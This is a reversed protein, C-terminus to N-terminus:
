FEHHLSEDLYPHNKVMLPAKTLQTHVVFLFLGLFMMFMGLELPNFFYWHAGVTGPMVIQFLDVWHFFFIICGVVALFKPNRKADRAILFIMPLAFNVFFTTWMVPKYLDFRTQFYTIEEPINAYWILMFQCFWLYSWLFSTAFMWKGIDHIHSDNVQQLYGKSKLFLIFLILMIMSSCWTGSFIYWGFMTSYWHTDISMLWDWASTSSTVGYLVLFIAAMKVNKWHIDLGGELDEQLSRKRFGKYFLYWIGLYALTRIWFFPLNLYGSKGAIVEDYHESTPDSIGHAMWHYIHNFGLSSALLVIILTIAGVPLYGAIAEYVRKVAVAYASETAYQLTWFFLAAVSIGLFFFSNMLVNAWLRQGLHEDHALVLGLIVGVLGVGM